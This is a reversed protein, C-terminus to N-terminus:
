LRPRVVVDAQRAHGNGNLEPSMPAGMAWTPAKAGQIAQVLDKRHDGDIAGSIRLGQLLDSLLEPLDYFDAVTKAEQFTAWMENSLTGLIDTNERDVVERHPSRPKEM